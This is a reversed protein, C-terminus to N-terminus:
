ATKAYQMVPDLGPMRENLLVEFSPRAKIKEYWKAAAPHEEWPVDGIYDITSLHAAATIDALSFHDGAL